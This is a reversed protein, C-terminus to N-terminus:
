IGQHDLFSSLAHCLQKDRFSLGAQYGSNNLLPRCWRIEAAGSRLHSPFTDDFSCTVTAERDLYQSALLRIGGRSFDIVQAPLRPTSGNLYEDTQIITIEQMGSHRYFQRRDAVIHYTDGGETPKEVRYQDCLSYDVSKCYSNLHSDLPIFLGEHSIKCSGTTPSWFPCTIYQKHAM